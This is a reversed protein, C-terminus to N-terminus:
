RHHTLKIQGVVSCGSPDVGPDTVRDNLKEDSTILGVKVMQMQPLSLRLAGFLLVAAVVGVGAGAVQSARKWSHQRLHLAIAIAAPFLLLVFTMGWPGTISVLQLFPLFKLQSYALSGASGHPSTVNRVYESTVWVAPLALVGSRVAGRLVLVRFLLVAAAFVVGAALFINVWAAGPMGLTKTFYSWINLNGLMMVAVATVAATWWKSRLACWLLPLPAFWMLPWWPELGNGFYFMAATAAISLASEVLRRYRLVSAM